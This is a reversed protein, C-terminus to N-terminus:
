DINCYYGVNGWTEYGCEVEVYVGGNLTDNPTGYHHTHGGFIILMLAIFMSM